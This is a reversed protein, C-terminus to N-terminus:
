CILGVLRDMFGSALCNLTVYIHIYIYVYLLLSVCVPWPVHVRICIHTHICIYIYVRMYGRGYMRTPSHWTNPTQDSKPEGSM